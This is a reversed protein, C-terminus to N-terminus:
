HGTNQLECPLSDNGENLKTLPLWDVAESICDGETSRQVVYRSALATRHQGEVLIGKHKRM